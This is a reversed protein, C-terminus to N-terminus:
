QFRLLMEIPKYKKWYMVTQCCQDWSPNKQSTICLDMKLRVTPYILGASLGLDGVPLCISQKTTKTPGTRFDDHHHQLYIPPAICTPPSNELSTWAATTTMNGYNRNKHDFYM